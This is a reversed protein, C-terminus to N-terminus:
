DVEFEEAMVMIQVYQQNGKLCTWTGAKKLSGSLINNINTWKLSQHIVMEVLVFLHSQDEYGRSAAKDIANGHIVNVEANYCSGIASCIDQLDLNQTSDLAYAECYDKATFM